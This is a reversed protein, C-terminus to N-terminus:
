PRPVARVTCRPSDMLLLNFVDQQLPDYIARRPDLAVLARDPSASDPGAGSGARQSRLCSASAFTPEASPGCSLRWPHRSNFACSLAKEVDLLKGHHGDHTVAATQQ